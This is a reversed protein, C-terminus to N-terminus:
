GLPRARDQMLMAHYAHAAMCTLCACWREDSSKKQNCPLCAVTANVVANTGGLSRPVIHDRTRTDATLEVGCYHCHDPDGPIKHWPISRVM